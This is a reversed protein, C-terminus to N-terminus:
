QYDPLSGCTAGRLPMELRESLHHRTVNSAPQPKFPPKFQADLGIRPTKIHGTHRDVHRDVRELHLVASSNFAPNAHVNSIPPQLYPRRHLYAPYAIRTGPSPSQAFCLRSYSLQNRRKATPCHICATTNAGPRSHPQNSKGLKACTGRRSRGTREIWRRIICVGSLCVGLNCM